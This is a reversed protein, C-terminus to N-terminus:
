PPSPLAWEEVPLYASLNALRRQVAAIERVAQATVSRDIPSMLEFTLQDSPRQGAAHQVLQYRLRLRQLVEFVEVLTTAHRETLMASGASAKLRDVTGLAPAGVSLASWRALNVVPLIAHAKIDFTTPRRRLAERVPGRKARQALSEELLLRMTSPHARLDAFVAAVAPRAVAGHIPRGDVLLSTMVAGHNEAPSAMWRQAAARWQDETRVFASRRASAGHGDAVLGAASLVDHVEGFASVYRNFLPRDLPETLAVASDVDSSLVAERRGNSGLSLWTFAQASLDAHGALVLDIARSIVTDVVTAHVAVVRASTLGRSLLAAVMAPLAQAREALEQVTSARRLQEYLSLDAAASTVTFDRASVVGQVQGHADVVVVFESHHEVLRLLAEAASEGMVAVPPAASLVETAPADTATGGVIVSQRLSADTVLGFGGGPLRVVACASHHQSMLRAVEAASQHADVVLPPACILDDVTSYAAPVAPRKALTSLGEALFRAGRKSTFARSAVDGPIRAVTVDGEAVARPGVSRETLMASFGFIGGRGLTEDPEAGAGDSASWLSVRGSVVVFVETTQDKFADLVVGGSEVDVIEAADVVAALEAASLSDFPPEGALLTALRDAGRAPAADDPSM